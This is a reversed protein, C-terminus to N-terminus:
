MAGSGRLVAPITQLLIRIDLWFSWEDMYQLDLRMWQDFTISNRGAIQWLCTIGPKVSFRRRQWDLNFGAYDRLPLPRPGVLSMDGKLVNLLQPLEDISTCRLFKGTKTIRPDNRMKFTPGCTENCQELKGILKEADEVMTRFKYMRFRRKNIGLREQVFLVPGPSSLKVALAAILAVPSLAILLFASVFIDLVRKIAVQWGEHRGIFTSIFHKGGFEEARHQVTKLGFLDSNFHMKIGHEQCLEAIRQSHSYFSAVPLFMAVEDVVNQRLYQNLGSLDCALPLGTNAFERMGPWEDDVFGLLRYGRELQRAFLVARENTGLVLMHRVNRGHSRVHMLTGHLVVRNGCILLVALLWFLCLFQSTIMIISFLKTVLVFCSISLTVAKCVAIVEARLNSFRRPIYLGCACFTLHCVFLTGGLILFNVVRTRMSLFEYLSLNSQIRVMLTTTTAFAFFLLPIDLIGFLGVPVRNRDSM